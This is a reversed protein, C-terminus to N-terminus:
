LFGAIHIELSFPDKEGAPGGLLEVGGPLGGYVPVRPKPARGCGSSSAFAGSTAAACASPANRNLTCPQFVIMLAVKKATPLV